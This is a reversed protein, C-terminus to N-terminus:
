HISSCTFLTFKFLASEVAGTALKNNFTNKKRKEGEWKENGVAMSSELIIQHHYITSNFEICTFSNFHRHKKERERMKRKKREKERASEDKLM